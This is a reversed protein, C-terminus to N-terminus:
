NVLIMRFDNVNTCTPGTRVEDGLREFYRGSDHRELFDSPLMGAAIGRSVTTSDVMAGAIPGNKGTRGDIGDTDAILASVDSLGDIEIALALAFERNPGGYGPEHGAVFRVTVEGGSIIALKRKGVGLCLDAIRKAQESAEGQIDDGILDPEYGYRKAIAAAATLADMPRAVVEYFSRPFPRRDVARCGTLLSVVSRPLSLDYRAVIERAAEADCDAAVTPASGIVDPSDGVVDSIALTTVSAPWCSRALKGGKIASLFKRMSNIDDISAGAAFMAQTVLRKDDLTIGTVPACLLSSAGGSLLMLVHDDSKLNAVASLMQRAAIESREDPLPHSAQLYDIRELDAAYGDPVVVLGGIREPPLYALYFKEALEAMAASAKGAGLIVLRGREPSEPLRNLLDDGPQCRRIAESFAVQLIQRHASM